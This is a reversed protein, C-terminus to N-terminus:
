TIKQEYIEEPKNDSREISTRVLYIFCIIFSVVALGFFLFGIIEVNQLQIRFVNFYFIVSIVLFVSSLFACLAAKKQSPSNGRKKSYYSFVSILVILADILCAGGIFILLYVFGSLDVYTAPAPRMKEIIMYVFCFVWFAFYVSSLIKLVIGKKEKAM